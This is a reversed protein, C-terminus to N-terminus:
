QDKKGFGFDITTKKDQKLMRETEQSQEYVDAKYSFFCIVSVTVGVIVGLIIVTKDKM